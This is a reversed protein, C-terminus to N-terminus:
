HHARGAQQSGHAARPAVPPPGHPRPATSSRQVAREGGGGGVLAHLEKATWHPEQGRKLWGRRKKVEHAALWVRFDLSTVHGETYATWALTLEAVGLQIFGGEILSPPQPPVLAGRAGRVGQTSTAQM